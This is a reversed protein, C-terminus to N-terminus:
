DIRSNNSSNENRLEQTSQKIREVFNVLNNFTNPELYIKQTKFNDFTEATLITYYSDFEAYVGDGLYEKFSM